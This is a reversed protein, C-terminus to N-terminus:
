KESCIPVVLNGIVSYPFAFAVFDAAGLSYKCTILFIYTHATTCSVTIPTVATLKRLYSTAVLIASDLAILVTFVCLMGMRVVQYNLEGFAKQLVKDKILILILWSHCGFAIQRVGLLCLVSGM